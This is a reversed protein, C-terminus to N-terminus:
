KHLEELKILKNEDRKLEVFHCFVNFRLLFLLIAIVIILFRVSKEFNGYENAWHSLFLIFWCIDSIISIIVLTILGTLVRNQERLKNKNLFILFVGSICLDLFCPKEFCCIMAFFFYFIIVNDTESIHESLDKTRIEEEM